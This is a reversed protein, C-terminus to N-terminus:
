NWPQDKAPFHCDPTHCNDCPMARAQPQRAGKSAEIHKIITQIQEETGNISLVQAGEAGGVGGSSISVATAGSLINVAEIETITKGRAPYLGCTMGMGYKYDKRRAAKAAEAITGPILKELGIPLVVHFKKKKQATLVHGITGGGAHGFLVGVDGQTDVANGTKIYVDDPGLENLIKGLPIGSHLTREKIVWKFPFANMMTKLDEIHDLTPTKGKKGAARCLGQPLICGCLWVDTDPEKGTIEEIIFYTTSSPHIVVTGHSLAHKVIDMEAVAKSILKKSEIPTLVIQAWM